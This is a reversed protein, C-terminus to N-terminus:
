DSPGLHWVCLRDTLVALTAGDPSLQAEVITEMAIRRVAQDDRRSRVEVFYTSVCAYRDGLSLHSGWAACLQRRAGTALDFELTHGYWDDCVLLDGPGFAVSHVQPGGEVIARRADLDLVTVLKNDDFTALRGRTPHFVLPAQIFMPATEHRMVVAGDGLDRVCLRAPARTDRDGLTEWYAVRTLDPSLTASAWRRAGSSARGTLPVCGERLDHPAKTIEGRGVDWTFIEGGTLLFRLRAGTADSVAALVERWAGPDRSAPHEARATAAGTAADHRTLTLGEPTDAATFVRRGDGSLALAGRHPAAVVWHPLDLAAYTVQWKKYTGPSLGAAKCADGLRQGQALAARAALLKECVEALTYKAM